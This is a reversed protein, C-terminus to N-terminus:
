SATLNFLPATDPWLRAPPLQPPTLPVFVGLDFALGFGGCGLRDQNEHADVDVALLGLSLMEDQPLLSLLKCVFDQTAPVDRIDVADRPRPFGLAGVERVGREPWSAHKRAVVEATDAAGLAEGCM